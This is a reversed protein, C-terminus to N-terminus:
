KCYQGYVDLYPAFAERIEDDTLGYQEASYTHAGRSGVRNAESWDAITQRMADTLTLGAFDYIRQAVDVASTNMEQQSVDIFREDGLRKRAETGNVAIRAFRALQEHGFVSWDDPEYDPIRRRHGDITVSCTSPVLKAPDRHTWVFKADPWQEVIDELQQAYSPYKLLWHHPPRHSQLLRLVRDVYAFASPHRNTFWWEEFSHLPMGHGSRFDLMHLPGDEAGGDVTRIHMTSQEPEVRRPDDQETAIDPPPLPQNREWTRLYRLQPDLSLMHHTATTATRPLGMISLPGEVPAAAEDGHEAYWQEIRLRTSLREVLIDELRAAADQEPVDIALAALMEGLGEQWGNAGFDSLGTEATARDILDQATARM